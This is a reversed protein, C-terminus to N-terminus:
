PTGTATEDGATGNGATENREASQIAVQVLDTDDGDDSRLTYNGPDADAPVDITVAWVGFQGWRDTAAADFAQPTPGDSVEVSVTNDEPKRNTRGVVVM